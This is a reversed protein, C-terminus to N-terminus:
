ASAAGDIPSRHTKGKEQLIDFGYLTGRLVMFRESDHAIHLVGGGFGVTFQRAFNEGKVAQRVAKYRRTVVTKRASGEILRIEWTTRRRDVGVGGLGWWVWFECSRV